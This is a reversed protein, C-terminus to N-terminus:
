DVQAARKGDSIPVELPRKLLLLVPMEKLYYDLIVRDTPSLEDNANLSILRDCVAVFEKLEHRLGAVISSGEDRFLLPSQGESPGM